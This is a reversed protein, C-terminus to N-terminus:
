RVGGILNLQGTPQKRLIALVEGLMAHVEHLLVGDATGIPAVGSPPPEDIPEGPEPLLDPEPDPVKHEAASCFSTMPMSGNRGTDERHYHVVNHCGNGDTVTEVVDVVVFVPPRGQNDARNKQWRTMPQVLAPDIPPQPRRRTHMRIDTM